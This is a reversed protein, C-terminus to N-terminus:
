SVTGSVKKIFCPNQGEAKKKMKSKRRKAHCLNPL